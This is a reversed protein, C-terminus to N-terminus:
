RTRLEDPQQSHDDLGYQHLVGFPRPKTLELMIFSVVPRKQSHMSLQGSIATNSLFYTKALITSVGTM